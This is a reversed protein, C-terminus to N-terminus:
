VHKIEKSFTLMSNDRTARKLSLSIDLNFSRCPNERSLVKPSQLYDTTELM